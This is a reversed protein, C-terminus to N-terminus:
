KVENDKTSSEENKLATRASSHVHNHTHTCIHPLSMAIGRKKYNLYQEFIIIKKSVNDLLRPVMKIKISANVNVKHCGKFLFRM